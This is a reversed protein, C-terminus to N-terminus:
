LLICYLLACYLITSVIFYLLENEINKTEVSLWPRM